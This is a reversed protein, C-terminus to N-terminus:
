EGMVEYLDCRCNPHVPPCSHGSSFNADLGIPGDAANAICEEDVRDDGATVWRKMKVLGSQRMGALTGEAYGSIVETRAMREARYDAQQDFFSRISEAIQGTTKGQDVGTVILDRVEQKNTEAISKAHDLAHKSLWDIVRPNKLDFSINVGLRELVSKGSYALSNTLVETTLKQYEDTWQKDYGDFVIDLLDTRDSKVISKKSGILRRVIQSKQALLKEIYLPKVRTIESRVFKVRRDIFAARRKDKTVEGSIAKLMEFTKKGDKTKDSGNNSKDGGDTPVPSPNNNSNGQDGDETTSTVPMLNLPLYLVDGGPIKDLGEEERIENITQWPAGGLAAKYDERESARDEPIPNEYDFYYEPWKLGFLPLYFENLRDIIFQIRPKIVWRGFIVETAEANARNVDEVIGLVSKPVRFMALIEDRTYKRTELFDVEQPTLSVKSFKAGGELIALKGANDVGQYRSEWQKKIRSFQEETLTGTFELAGSPMASNYFTNKSWSAAFTDIDIANAAAAVTGLGRYPNSPNYRKFHIIHKTDFPIQKGSPDTYLYGGIMRNPDKVVTVRTPDVPFIERPQTGAVNWNLVWFADGLLELQSQTEVLLDSSTMVPNVDYLTQIAPHSKVEEVTGDKLKRMLKIDANAVQEAIVSTCAYVWSTYAKKYEYDKIGPAERNLMFGFLGVPASKAIGFRKIFGDIIGM